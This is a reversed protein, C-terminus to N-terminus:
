FHIIMALGPGSTTMDYAFLHDGSGNKDRAYCIRYAALFTINSLSYGIGGLVNWSFESGLGFGGVDARFTFVFHRDMYWTLRAGVIPDIWKQEGRNTQDGDNRFETEAKFYRGGAIIEILNSVRRALSIETLTLETNAQDKVLDVYVWDGMLAWGSKKLEIHGSLGLNSYTFFNKFTFNIKRSEGNVTLDGNMTTMWVYPTIELRLRDNRYNYQAGAESILLFLLMIFTAIKIKRM